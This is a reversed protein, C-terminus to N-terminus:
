FPAPMRDELRGITVDMRDMRAENQAFRWDQGADVAIQTSRNGELTATLAAIQVSMIDLKATFTNYSSVIIGGLTLLLPLAAIMSLRSAMLALASSTLAEIKKVM